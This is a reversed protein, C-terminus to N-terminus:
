WLRAVLEGKSLYENLYDSWSSFKKKDAVVTHKELITPIEALIKTYATERAWKKNWKEGYRAAEKQVWDYCTLHSVLDCYAAHLIFSWHDIVEFCSVENSLALFLLKCIGVVRPM